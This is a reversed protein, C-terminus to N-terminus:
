YTLSQQKIGLSCYNSILTLLDTITTTHWTLLKEAIDHHSCFVNPPINLPYDEVFQINLPYDEVFQINLPYDEVFQINLPYDEVFQINLPYDEVCQINLPYDEVFQINLPYDEVFQINPKSILLGLHVDSYSL